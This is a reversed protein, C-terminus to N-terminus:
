RLVSPLYVFRDSPAIQISNSTEIAQNSSNKATVLMTYTKGNTLGSVTYQKATGANFPGPCAAGPPCTLTIEYSAVGSVLAADVWWTLLIKGSAIPGGSLIIPVYEDAGIDSASFWPRTQYDIDNNPSSGTAMNRAPSTKKIRYNYNPSGPSVFEAGTANIPNSDTVSGISKGWNNAWLTRQLAIQSNPQVQVAYVGSPEIHDSIICNTFSASAPGGGSLAVIATGQMSTSSLRNRAFTTYRIDANVGQLDIGGGGGGAVAGVTGMAAYNDAIVSNTMVLNAVPGVYDAFYAGGGATAGSYGGSQGNGALAQNNIIRVRDMTANSEVVSIGGGEALGGRFQTSTPNLGAGGRATNNQIVFDRLSVTAEESFIGGGFAGAATGNPANGGVATNSMVTVYQFEADTSIQLAIGAGQADGTEGNYLGVGSTSGGTSQNNTATIYRGSVTTQYTFLGGGIAYGGRQAGSGGLVQNNTFVVHELSTGAGATRLAAGGGAASGGIAQSTNGGRAQNNRFTVRLLEVHAFDVLLGGGFGTMQGIAGSTAGQAFGNQVIVDVLRLSGAFISPDTFAYIGRRQSQGDIVTPHNQPDSQTWSGHPYGGLLVIQRNYVCLVATANLYAECASFAGGTYIYTGEAVLVTAGHLESVNNVAHQLSKCPMAESGCTASDIGTLGDVRIIGTAAQGYTVTIGQWLVLLLASSLIVIWWTQKSSRM